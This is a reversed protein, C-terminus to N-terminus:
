AGKLGLGCQAESVFDAAELMSEIRAGKPPVADARAGFGAFEVIARPVMTMTIPEFLM